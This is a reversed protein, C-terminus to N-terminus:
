RRLRRRVASGHRGQRDDVGLNVCHCEHLSPSLGRRISDVDTDSNGYLPSLDLYSSADNVTPDQRNTNFITHIILDAFAFFLSSVGDPHPTFTERKLLRDFVLGADPLAFAPLPHTSPVSRAYPSGAKGLGPWLVNYDAGDAARFAYTVAKHQKQAGACMDGPLSIYGAPPHPLDKYM